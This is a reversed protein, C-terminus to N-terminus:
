STKFSPALVGLIQCLLASVHRVALHLVTSNHMNCKWETLDTFAILQLGTKGECTYRCKGFIKKRELKWMLNRIQKDTWRARQTGGARRWQGSRLLYTHCPGSSALGTLTATRDSAAQNSPDPTWIGSLAYMNKGLTINHLLTGAALAGPHM